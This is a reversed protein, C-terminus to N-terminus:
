FILSCGCGSDSDNDEEPTITEDKCLPSCGDGPLMNGDDCEEGSEVIKNGCVAVTNDDNTEIVDDDSLEENDNANLTESAKCSTVEDACFKEMCKETESESTFGTCMDKKCTLLNAVAESAVTTGESKCTDPCSEGSIYCDQYSFCTTDQCDQLEESCKSQICSYDQNPCNQNVCTAFNNFANVAESSIQAFCLNQTNECNNQCDEIMYCSDGQYICGGNKCKYRDGCDSDTTCNDLGHGTWGYLTDNIWERYKVVQTDYGDRDPVCQENIGFSTVGSVVYRGNQMTFFPGGSDGSCTSAPNGVEILYKTGFGSFLGQRRVTATGKRHLGSDNENTGTLGYGVIIGQDGITELPYNRVPYYEKDTVKKSLHIMAIDVANENNVNGDWLPHKVVDATNGITEVDYSVISAGAVVQISYYKGSGYVCHGATLLVEPDILTATCIASRDLWLGVVGKWETYGTETGNVVPNYISAFPNEKPTVAEASLSLFSLLSALFLLKKM